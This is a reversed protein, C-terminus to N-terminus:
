DAILWLKRDKSKCMHTYLAQIQDRNMKLLQLRLEFLEKDSKYLIGMQIPRDAYYTVSDGVAMAASCDVHWAESKCHATLEM